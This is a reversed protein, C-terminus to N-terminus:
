LNLSILNGENNRNFNSNAIAKEYSRLQLWCGVLGRREGKGKRVIGSGVVNTTRRVVWERCVEFRM